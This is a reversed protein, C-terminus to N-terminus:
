PMGIRLGVGLSLAGTSEGPLAVQDPPFPSGPDSGDANPMMPPTATFPEGHGFPALTASAIGDLWVHHFLPIAIRIAASLRPAYTTAAFNDGVYATGNPDVCVQERQCMPDMNPDNPDCGVPPPDNVKTCSELRRTTTRGIGIGLEPAITLRGLPLAVRGTVLVSAHSRSMATLNVARDAEAAYHGRGGVCARGVRFCASATFGSASADGDLWTEEYGAGIAFRELMSHKAVPAVVVPPLDVVPKPQLTSAPAFVPTPMAVLWATGDLDDHLWSDIWSAATAADSVVRGESRKGGDRIAVAIGDGEAEVVAFVSRCGPSPTGRDVGLVSLEAAVQEVTRRDGSLDARPKCVDANAPSILSAVIAIAVANRFPRLERSPVPNGAISEVVSRRRFPRLGRTRM